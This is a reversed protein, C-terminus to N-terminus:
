TKYMNTTMYPWPKSLGAYCGPLHSLTLGESSSLITFSVRSLSYILRCMVDERGFCLLAGVRLLASFLHIRAYGQLGSVHGNEGLLFMGVGWVIVVDDKHRTPLMLEM